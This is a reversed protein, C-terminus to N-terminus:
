VQTNPSPDDPSTSEDDTIPEVSHRQTRAKITRIEEDSIDGKRHMELLNALGESPLEQDQVVYDRYSAVIYFAASILICLVVVATAAQAVTSTFFDPM